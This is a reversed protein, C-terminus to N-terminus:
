KRVQITQPFLFDILKEATPQPEHNALGPRENAEIVKYRSQEMNSVILDFGVVPIQLAQAAELCVRKLDPHLQATVDHITGGQHLNAVPRVIVTKGEQLVDTVVYGQTKLYDRTLSDIPIRSEGRTSLERRRSQKQILKRITSIGDGAIEPPRRTAAAVVETQIVIVRLDVGEIQSELVVKQCYRKAMQIAKRLGQLTQVGITIGMGQEGIAPKVVVKKHRILFAKEAERDGAILQDPVSIGQEALRQHTLTKDSCWSLAIASTRETLSERCVIVTGGLSLRFYGEKADLVAVQIGRKRAENVIIAAYPNLNEEPAPGIYLRENIVNKRKICFAPLREFGMKEYLQLAAENSHMVSIDVFSRGRQKFQSVLTNVLANGIGAHRSQLDVALSWLSAGNEPDDFLRVHDIGLAVGLVDGTEKEVATIYQLGPQNEWTKLFGPEIQMMRHKALIINIADQQDAAAPQIEYAVTDTNSEAFAGLQLRLAHSPDLFLEQPAAALVLQPDRIYFAIDRQGPKEQLIEEALEKAHLFTHGFIIRGWGCNATVNQRSTWLTMHTM